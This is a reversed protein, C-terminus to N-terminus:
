TNRRLIIITLDKNETPLIECQSFNNTMYVVDFFTDCQFDKSITTLYITDAVRLADKYLQAGGIVFVPNNNIEELSKIVTANPLETLTTSVVYCERGPLVSVKAADGLLENIENYTNRGMVCAHNMTTNKFHIFDEKYYWPIRGDKAFGGNADIAVIIKINSL